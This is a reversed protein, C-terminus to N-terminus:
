FDFIPLSNLCKLRKFDTIFGFIFGSVQKIFLSLKSSVMTVENLRSFKMFGIKNPSGILNRNLSQETTYNADSTEKNLSLDDSVKKSFNRSSFLRKNIIQNGNKNNSDNSINKTNGPKM